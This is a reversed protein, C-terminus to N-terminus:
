PLEQEAILAGILWIVLIPVSWWGAVPPVLVVGVVWSAFLLRGIVAAGSAM